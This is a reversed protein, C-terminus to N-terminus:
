EGKPHSQVEIPQGDLFLNAEKAAKFYNLSQAFLHLRRDHSRDVWANFDPITASQDINSVSKTKRNSPVLGQLAANLKNSPSLNKYAASSILSESRTLDFM